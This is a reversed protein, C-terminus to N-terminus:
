ETANGTSHTVNNNKHEAQLTQKLKLTIGKKTKNQNHKNINM